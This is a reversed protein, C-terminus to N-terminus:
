DTGQMFQRDSQVGGWEQNNQDRLIFQRVSRRRDREQNNQNRNRIFRPSLLLPCDVVGDLRQRM